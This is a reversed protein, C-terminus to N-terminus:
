ICSRPLSSHNFLESIAMDWWIICVRAQTTLPLFLANRYLFALLSKHMRFLGKSVPNESAFPVCLQLPKIHGESGGETFGFSICSQKHKCKQECCSLSSPTADLCLIDYFVCSFQYWQKIWRPQGHRQGYVVATLANQIFPACPSCLCSM